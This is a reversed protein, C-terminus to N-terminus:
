LIRTLLFHRLVLAIGSIATNGVIYIPNRRVSYSNYGFDLTYQAPGIKSLNIWVGAASSHFVVKKKLAFLKYYESLSFARMIDQSCFGYRFAWGKLWRSKYTTPDERRTLSLESICM